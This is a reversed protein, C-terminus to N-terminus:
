HPWVQKQAEEWADMQDPPVWVAAGIARGAEWVM